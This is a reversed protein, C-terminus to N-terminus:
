VRGLDVCVWCVRGVDEGGLNRCMGASAENGVLVNGHALREEGEGDFFRGMEERFLKASLMMGLGLRRYEKETHLTTLSGDLGVFGWAVPAADSDVQDKPFIALNPLRALTYDQRAIETRSRVLPFHDPSLKGWRLNPPLPKAPPLTALPFVFTHNANPPLLPPSLLNLSQLHPVTSSHIAGFLVINPDPLQPNSPYHNSTALQSEAALVDEPRHISPPTGLKKIHNIFALLLTHIAQAQDPLTARKTDDELATDSASLTEVEWSGFLWVETEPRCGRDVFAYFWPTDTQGLQSGLKRNTFIYSSDLFRGFQLRRHLALATRFYAPQRLHKLVKPIVESAKTPDALSYARIDSSM